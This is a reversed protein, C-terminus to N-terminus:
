DKPTIGARQATSRATIQARVEIQRVRERTTGDLQGVEELTLGDGGAADAVDLACAGRGDDWGQLVKMSGTDEQYSIALHYKCGVYPCPADGWWRGRGAPMDVLEGAANEYRGAPRCETRNTPRPFAALLARDEETTPSRKLTVAQARLSESAGWERAPAVVRLHVRKEPNRVQVRERDWRLRQGHVRREVGQGDAMVLSRCSPSCYPAGM